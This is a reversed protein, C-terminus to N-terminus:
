GGQMGRWSLPPFAVNDLPEDLEISQGIARSHWVPLRAPWSLALADSAEYRAAFM